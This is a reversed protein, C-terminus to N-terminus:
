TKISVQNELAIPSIRLAIQGSTPNIKFVRGVDTSSNNESYISYALRANEDADVASVKVVLSEATLNAFINAKYESLAFEPSNDNEDTIQVKVTTFGNRGGTDTAVVPVEYVAREERDFAMLSTLEGTVPNIRFFKTSIVDSQIKYRVHDDRDEDQAVVRGVRSGEPRNEPFAIDITSDPFVPSFSNVSFLTIRVRAFSAFVGDTVSVNLIYLSRKDFGNLNVLSIIGSETDMSFFQGDDGGAIAYSLKDADDADVARVRTVFQGRHARDSLKVSYDTEEFAPSNDNADEVDITVVVTATLPRPGKDTASVTFTHSQQRERDLKRKVFVEGTDSNVGFFLSANNVNKVISYEVEGNAGSDADTAHVTLVPTLVPRAESVSARYADSEFEPRCDNVDEVGLLVLADAFGGNLSDTARVTLQHHPKSEFDLSETVSVVGSTHDVSFHGSDNGSELTYILKGDLHPSDASVAVVPSYLKVDERVKTTYLHQAFVPVSEDVVRILVSAEAQYPPTGGDYAAVTLKYEKPADPPPPRRLTIQGSKRGVRFLEGNGRVLQYYIDGNTGTDADVASVRIVVSDKEADAPLLAHYPRGVFIPANDNIDLVTVEIVVHAVRPVTRAHDQSFVEAVVEHRDAKERDFVKGTTRVAGSTEGISFLDTPNLLSFRLDENLSAGLVTLVTIVDSKTSNELVQAYYREHAFALGSNDARRVRIRLACRDTFKGDTVTLDLSYSRGHVLDKEDAVSVVGSDEDIAFTGADDGGSILFSLGKPDELAKDPDSANVTTVVVGRFTPLLLVAEYERQDFRPPSDNEDMVEIEVRATVESSLKPTGRDSVRVNFVFSSQQEYDLTAITRIAGTSEDVAFFKSAKAELIEYHLLSNVGSDADSAKIVLPSHSKAVLVLSSMSASESVRGMFSRNEFRPANDNIDLVHVHATCHARAGIMNSASISLNYFRKKEYDLTQQAMLIGTSPNIAFESDDNGATIEFRLASSARAFVQLIFKGRPQNEHVETSYHPRTFRPPAEDSMILVIHVPIMASLPPDGHDSAVVTLTYESQVAMNLPRNVRLTGLEEDISFADGANGVAIAYGLRGNDGRDIDVAVVRTVETGVEATEHLRVQMLKSLFHPAHDNRDRVHILVRVFNARVPTGQDKACVTLVHRVLRESDLSEKLTIVGSTPSLAFKTMSSPDQASHFSFSIKGARDGDTVNLMLIKKGVSLDEPVEVNFEKTVFQPRGENVDIIAVPVYTFTSHRGDTVRVTLNYSSKREWDLNQALLISGRDPSIYFANNDNGSDISYWLDDGDDDEAVVLSVLHGIEDSEFVQAPTTELVKPPNKNTPSQAATAKVQMRVRSMSSKKGGDVVRVLMEHQEGASLSEMAFIIGTLPDIKLKSDDNVKMSYTLKGNEGEDRDFALPRFIAKSALGRHNEDLSQWTNNVFLEEWERYLEEEETDNLAASANEGDVGAEQDNQLRAAEEVFVEPISVKYFRELFEPENDNEDTVTVVVRTTSNLPPKGNDSVRVELVHEAQTERDLRRKTTSLVGANPDIHFLSQPNGGIIEYSLKTGGADADGDVAEITLVHTFPKANERVSPFYVPEKTLPANDNVNLVEVYLHLRASLSVAGRDEAYITLWYGAKSERDLAALTRINGEDDIDFTGLGDGGHVSYTVRGDDGKDGDRAEVKTVHAGPAKNEPVAASMFFTDFRPAHLNENVDAVEVIFFSTSYLPPSGEDTARVTLNYLQRTEYDLRSAVRVCGTLDDIAFDKSGDLSFRIKGGQYLDPDHANVSGVVAGVPLDERAKVVYQTSSFKPAVDNVDVIRVRVTAVSSLPDLPDSDSARIRLDYFEKRERDLQGSTVLLGSHSDIEFDETPTDLSYVVKGSVGEDADTAKLTVVTTNPTTNELFFFSFSSKEFIPPNDNCDEVIVRLLRSDSKRPKGQDYVTINLLYEATAERDLFTGITLRGSHMDLDFASDVDGESIVYLLAGNFGLDRDHAPVQFACSIM